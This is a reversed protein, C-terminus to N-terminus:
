GHGSYDSWESFVGVRGETLQVHIESSAEGDPDEYHESLVKTVTKAVEPTFNAIPHDGDQYSRVYAIFAEVTMKPTPEVVKKSNTKM